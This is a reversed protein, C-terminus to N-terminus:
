LLEMPVVRYTPMLEEQFWVAYYTSGNERMLRDCEEVATSEHAYVAVDEWVEYEDSCNEQLMYVMTM